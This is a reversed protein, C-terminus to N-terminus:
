RNRGLAARLSGNHGLAATALRGAAARCGLMGAPAPTSSTGCAAAGVGQRYAAAVGLM